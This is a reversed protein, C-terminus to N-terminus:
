LRLPDLAQVTPGLAGRGDGAGPARRLSVEVGVGDLAQPLVGPAQDVGAAGAAVAGDVVDDLQLRM